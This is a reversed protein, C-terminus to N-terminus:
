GVYEAAEPWSGRNGTDFRERASSPDRLIDSVAVRSLTTMIPLVAPPISGAEYWKAGPSHRSVCNIGGKSIACSSLNMTRKGFWHKAQLVSFEYYLFESYGNSQHTRERPTWSNLRVITDELKTSVFLQLQDPFNTLAAKKLKRANHRM